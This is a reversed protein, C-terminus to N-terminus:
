RGALTRVVLPVLFAVLIVAVAWDGIGFAGFVMRARRGWTAPAVGEARAQLLTLRWSSGLFTGGVLLLLAWQVWLPWSSM